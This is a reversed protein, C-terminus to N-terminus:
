RGPANRKRWRYGVSVRVGGGVGLEAFAGGGAGPAHEAGLVLLVYPTVRGGGALVSMGAGGYVASGQRKAPDLLFHWALDWRGGAGKGDLDGVTVAGLWRTRGEDRWGFGLGAGAFFPRSAIALAQLQLEHSGQARAARPAPAAALLALLAALSPRSSWSM